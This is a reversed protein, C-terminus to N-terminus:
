RARMWRPCSRLRRWHCEGWTLVTVYLTPKPWLSPRSPPSVSLQYMSPHFSLLSLSLSPSLYLSHCPIHDTSISLAVFLAVPPPSHLFTSLSHSASLCVSLCLCLPLPPSPSLNFSPSASARPYLSESTSPHHCRSTGQRIGPHTSSTKATTPRTTAPRLPRCQERRARADRAGRGWRRARTSPFHRRSYPHGSWHTYPLLLLYM